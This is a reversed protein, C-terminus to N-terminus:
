ETQEQIWTLSSRRDFPERLIVQSQDESAGVLQFGTSRGDPNGQICHNMFLGNTTTAKLGMAHIRVPISCATIAGSIRLGAPGTLGYTLVV